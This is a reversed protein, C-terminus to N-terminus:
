HAERALPEVGEGRLGVRALLRGKVIPMPSVSAQTMDRAYEAHAGLETGDSTVTRHNKFFSSRAGKKLIESWKM